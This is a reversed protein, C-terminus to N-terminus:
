EIQGSVRLAEFIMCIIHYFTSTPVTVACPNGTSDIQDTWLGDDRLYTDRFSQIAKVAADPSAAGREIQALHAKILETQVWLRKTDRRVEGSIDEEDNLFGPRDQLFKTYLKDAYESTDIGRRTEYMWLLWVWEAAHGPEVTAGLSGKAITWDDEFFERIIHHTHDFFHTEFLAYIKDARDLWAKDGTLDYGHLSAEFVHMHPNQRRPQTAPIGEVWGGHPSALAADIFALMQQAIDRAGAVDCARDAWLAALLYFAHDYLDRRPDNVSYDPQLLHIFGPQGGQGLGQACMFNFTNEVIARGPYWGMKEALAYVYIQRAQVRLRRIVDRNPTGDLALHEYWGGRTDIATEAWVPLATDTLWTKLSLVQQALPNSM